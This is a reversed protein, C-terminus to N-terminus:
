NNSNQIDKNNIRSYKASSVKAFCLSLGPKGSTGYQGQCSVNGISYRCKKAENHVITDSDKM